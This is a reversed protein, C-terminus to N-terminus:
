LREIVRTRYDEVLRRVDDVTGGRTEQASLVLRDAGADAYRRALDVDLSGGHRWSGPWVTVEVADPDRGADRAAARMTVLRAALDEPSIVYPFFGDGRTGARRAAADTSGGVVIPVGSARAPKPESRVRDFSVFEGHFSVPDPGWLARLADLHEDLRAGRRAYPVGIAAYEEKQWGIGVGLRVRGRSLRDLTAVRKALVVPPHEPVVMVATGLLMRETCAAVFSLWELPDPMVTDPHDAMRGDRSYPYRPEYDEAVLAHEVTWVSDAGADEVAHAFAVVWDPEVIADRHFRPLIGFRVDSDHEFHGVDRSADDVEVTV